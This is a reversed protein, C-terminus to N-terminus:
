CPRSDININELGLNSIEGGSSVGYFMAAAVLVGGGNIYLRSITHGNGEFKTNLYYPQGSYRGIPNWGAGGNWYTPDGTETISGDGNEDFTLDARLEYGACTPVSNDTAPDNDPDVPRCGMGPAATFFAAQYATQDAAAVMGNGDLDYRVADLQALTRIDILGDNDDDYDVSDSFTVTVTDTASTLLGDSVTLSFTLTHTVGPDLAPTMFTPMAVTASSLTVRPGGTGQTWAYTITQGQPDASASADLTVTTSEYTNQDAGANAAPALAAYQLALQVATDFNGLRLVPYQTANGFHWPNDNGSVGDTNVNWDKYISGTTGYATPTALEAATKATAGATIGSADSDHYSYNITGNSTGVLGGSGAPIRENSYSATITGNQNRGVLGGAPSGSATVNVTAYSAIIANDNHHGVLGGVRSGGTVSGFAYSGAVNGVNYGILAGVINRGTVNVGHLGLEEVRGNPDMVRFLGINDQGSRAIFLNSITHGNGLLKTSMLYIPQWGQGGNWYTPDGAETIEGDGNEDFDLSARLEYGECTAACGMGDARGVFAAYYPAGNSPTGKGTADYRVANLESLKYIDILNDDDRDYDRGQPIRAAGGYILVPYESDRGFDWPADMGSADDIDLNWGAYIDTYGVPEQLVAATKGATAASGASTTQGTTATNWYSNTVTGSSSNRGALGGRSGASGGSVSGLAYTAELTGGANFGVLGGADGSSGGRVTARSHSAKITGTNRGAIGGVSDNAAGTVAGSVYVAAIDGANRGAVAGVGSAATRRGTVAADLLGLSRVSANSGLAGFLGLDATDSRRVLLDFITHGGGEFETNYPNAATGIPQWGKGGDYFTDGSDVSGSGDTDFELDAGLEYGACTSACGMGPYAAMFVTEYRTAGAETPVGNGDLDHRVMDLRTLSYIDILNDDDRDYDRQPAQDLGGFKLIPYDHGSGFEWPDDNGTVGDVNVNWNAYIGTYGTPSYLEATNKPSGGGASGGQGTTQRDWYSNVVQVSGGEQYGQLGRGGPVRGTAYSATIKGSGAAYGTLAGTFYFSNSSVTGTAYSATINGRNYGTLGGGRFSFLYGTVSGKAFSAAITGANGGVLGGALHGNNNNSGEDSYVEATSYSARIVGSSTNDGVVGGIVAVHGGCAGGAVRGTTHSGVILGYNVGALGGTRSCPRTDVNINELGLNAIEGGAGLAAFLGMNHNTGGANIFLRAITHRNGEFKATYSGGIPSWGAGSNWYTPDGAQTISNDDNEDFTLDVRLEYGTCTVSNDTNPDNDPDVTPCGMEAARYPFAAGYATVNAATDPDDVEGNGNLDYRVADLQALNRIDILGDNDDDYDVSDSFTVTVTDAASTLLGDSVTLTFTLTHTVGPGVAPTMFTPMAPATQDLTVRPGGAGQTWTYATISQGQPDASASADLTVLTSEYTDQDAGADATPALAAYQLALQAATDFNGLRLVPYQTANGFHWPNDNGTAGDTNVNWDKYIGATGYAIPTALEAATKHTAGTAIGSADSDHYSYNITGTSSGVLGASGNPSSGDVVRENSYSATITGGQNVGRWGAPTPTGSGTVNVTAYSAMITNTNHDGVLGGVRNRGSVSGFAYSGSVNGVNHGILAGVADRGTVNVGHLGLEEIRGDGDMQGFLGINDGGRNVFLNAITHGNGMFKTSLPGIPAWGKGADWYTPDGTETIDGDGNEDFDLNARLEYGACAAQCGMGARAGAFARYYGDNGAVGNGDGDYRVADLRALNYIDILNDNDRDYDRGQPFRGTVGYKLVPYEDAIGLDWPDDGGANADLNANWSAYIGAYSVPQQLDAASIGAADPSGASTTQGTRATDWYSHTVTGGANQGVLGGASGGSVAGRNYTVSIQGQNRGAIGGVQTLSAGSVSVTNYAATISGQNRGAIGGVQSSTSAAVTARNYSANITGGNQGALGGALSSGGAALQGSVYSQTIVGNNLGAVGGVFRTPATTIINVDTLALSEVRARSGMVGLLSHYNDTSGRRLYLHGISHGNGRLTGKFPNVSDAAIPAWGQGGNWYDGSSDSADVDNDGDTDFDLDTILEYGACTGPCGMNAFPAQFAAAYAAANAIAPTGDGDRDYRMADLRALNAIEILNDNDRDYDRQPSKLQGDYRLIPYDLASIFLWPDDNGAEGDLNSNWDAYIGTYGLVSQLEATTKGVGKGGLTSSMAVADTDWYSNTVTLSATDAATAYGVLGGLENPTRSGSQRLPTFALRGTAYSNTISSAGTSEGVLGGARYGGRNNWGNVFGGAYSSSIVGAANLGVLGGMTGFSSNTWVGSRAFSGVITGRNRGVLGGMTATANTDISGVAAYSASIVGANHSVLGGLESGWGARVRSGEAYSRAITGQNYCALAGTHNRYGNFIDVERLGLNSVSGSTGITHFLGNCHHSSHNPKRMYLRSIANGNGEFRATYVGGMPHWGQGGNWYAGEHDAATVSGSGDSDFTLNARLEYGVCGDPCIEAGRGGFAADYAERHGANDANDPAGDGDLDYRVVNLQAM